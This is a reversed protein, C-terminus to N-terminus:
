EHEFMRGTAAFRALYPLLEQMKKQTFLISGLWLQEEVVSSNCVVYKRERADVDEILGLGNYEQEIKM